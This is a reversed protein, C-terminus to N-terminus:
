RFDMVFLHFPYFLQLYVLDSYLLFYTASVFHTSDPSFLASYINIEVSFVGTFHHGWGGLNLSLM